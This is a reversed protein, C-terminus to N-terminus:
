TPSVDDRFALGRCRAWKVSPSLTASSSSLAQKSYSLRPAAPSARSGPCETWMATTVAKGSHGRGETGPWGAPWLRCGASCSPHLSGESAAPEHTAKAGSTKGLQWPRAMRTGLRPLDSPSMRGGTASAGMGPSLDWPPSPSAPGRARGPRCVASWPGALETGTHGAEAPRSHWSARKVTAMQKGHLGPATGQGLAM